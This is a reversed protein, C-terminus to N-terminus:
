DRYKTEGTADFLFVAAEHKKMLRAYDDVEQQGACLGQTGSAGDNNKFIVKPNADAWNWAKIAAQKLKESYDKKGMMGYVRSALAFASASTLTSSTSPTGYLSPGKAESPPSAHSEGICSIM